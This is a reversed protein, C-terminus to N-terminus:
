VSEKERERHQVMKKINCTRPVSCPISTAVWEKCVSVCVACKGCTFRLYVSLYLCGGSCGRHTVADSESGHKTNNKRGKRLILKGCVGKLFQLPALLSKSEDPPTAFIHKHTYFYVHQQHNIVRLVAELTNCKLM